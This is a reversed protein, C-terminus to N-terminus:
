LAGWEWLVKTYTKKQDFMGKEPFKLSLSDACDTWPQLSIFPLVIARQGTKWTSNMLEESEAEVNLWIIYTHGTDQSFSESDRALDVETLWGNDLIWIDSHSCSWAEAIAVFWNQHPLPFPTPFLYIHIKLFEKDLSLASLVLLLLSSTM